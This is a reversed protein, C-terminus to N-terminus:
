PPSVPPGGFLPPILLTRLESIFAAVGNGQGRSTLVDIRSLCRAERDVSGILAKHVRKPNHIASEDKTATLQESQTRPDYGLRQREDAWAADEDGPDPDFGSLVWCERMTHAIGVVVPIARTGNTLIPQIAARAQHLGSKDGPEREADTDRILVIADPIHPSDKLLLLALRALHADTEGPVGNFFGLASVGNQSALRRVQDWKLYEDAARFGRYTRQFGVIDADVWDVTDCLVGDIVHAATRLDTSGECVVAISQSM